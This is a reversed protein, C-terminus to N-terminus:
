GQASKRRLRDAFRRRFEAVKPAVVSACYPARPNREFYDHHCAEAPFFTAAAALETVIPAPWLQEATLRDIVARASAQQAPSQAFIVSRYQSGIDNGQRDPTTPDHITFFVTLLDAFALQAPDFVIEVVEAHGSGGSCVEEYTPNARAGGAYGPRVAVVGALELFVAELCWFCGGGLVATANPSLPAPTPHM